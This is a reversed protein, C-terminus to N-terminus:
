IKELIEISLSRYVSDKFKKLIIDYHKRAEDSNKLFKRNLEAVNFHVKDLMISKPSQDIIEELAQKADLFKSQAQYIQAYLLKLDDFWSKEAHAKITNLTDIAIRYLGQHYLFEAQAFSKLPANDSSDNYNKEIFVSLLLADNALLKTTSGKLVNLIDQALEFEGKYYFIKANKFRAEEAIKSEPDDKEVQAYLMAAEWVDSRLLSLDAKKVKLANKIAMTLNPKSLQLDIDSIAKVHNKLFITQFDARTILFELEYNPYFYGEYRNIFSDLKKAEQQVQNSDITLLLNYSAIIKKLMLNRSPIKANQQAELLADLCQNAEAYLGSHMSVDALNLLRGSFNQDLKDLALGVMVAEEYDKRQMAFYYVLENFLRNNKYKQINQYLKNTFFDIFEKNENYQVINRYMQHFSEENQDVRKMIQQAAESYQNLHILAGFLYQEFDSNPNIENIKKVFHYLIYYDNTQKLQHIFGHAKLQNAAYDRAYLNIKSIAKSTDKLTLLTKIQLIEFKPQELYFKEKQNLVDLAINTKGQFILVQVYNTLVDINNQPLLNEYIKEAEAYERKDLHRGAVRVSELFSQAQLMLGTMIFLPLM